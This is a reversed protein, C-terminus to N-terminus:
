RSSIQDSHSLEEDQAASFDGKSESFDVKFSHPVVVPSKVDEMVPSSLPHLQWPAGTSM